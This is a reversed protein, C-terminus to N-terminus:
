GARETFREAQLLAAAKIQAFLQKGPEIQLQDRSYSSIRALLKDGKLDLRVTCSGSATNECVEEVVAPLINLISSKKSRELSLSVDRAQIKLRVKQGSVATPPVHLINGAATSVTSLGPLQGSPMLQGTLVSFADDHQALSTNLRSFIEVPAGSLAVRGQEMVVVHDALRVLEDVSHTVYIVPIDLLHFTNELFPILKSKSVIDLAALPEDLLLLRPDSLLARGLAVRQQEGGSLDAVRRPLLPELALTDIVQRAELSGGSRLRAGFRLNGAVSLHPFLSPQQFVFGVGRRHVPLLSKGDQWAQGNVRITGRAARDLGAICRLLSTKGSGSAGFLVTTGSAPMTVDVSLRFGPRELQCSAEIM